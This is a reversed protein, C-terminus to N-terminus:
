GPMIHLAKGRNQLRTTLLCLFVVQPLCLWLRRPQPHSEAQSQPFSCM